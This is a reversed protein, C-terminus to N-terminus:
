KIMEMYKVEPSFTAGVKRFEQDPFQTKVSAFTDALFNDDM